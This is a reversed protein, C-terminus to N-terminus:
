QMRPVQTRMALTMLLRKVPPMNKIKNCKKVYGFDREQDVELRHVSVQV